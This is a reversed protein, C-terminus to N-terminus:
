KSLSKMTVAEAPCTTACLGCGWCKEADYEIATVGDDERDDRGSEAARSFAGFHCRDICIGCGVCIEPDHDAVYRSLPWHGKSGLAIGGRFPFCDDACCNCIFEPGDERWNGNATHMLGVKDAMRVIEKTETASLPRGLGRALSRRATDNMHICVDLPRDCARNIARCNCPFLAIRDASDIMEDLEELLMIIEGGVEEAPASGTMIQEAKERNLDIYQELSWTSLRQRVDPPLSEWNGFLAFYAVRNYFDSLRYGGASGTESDKEDVADLVGRSHARELLGRAKDAEIGLRRAAEEGRIEEKGFALALDVEEPTVFDGIWEEALSPVEFVEMFKSQREPNSMSFGYIKGPNADLIRSGEPEREQFHFPTSEPGASCLDV